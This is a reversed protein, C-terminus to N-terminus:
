EGRRLEGPRPAIAADDIANRPRPAHQPPALATRRLDGAALVAVRRIGDLRMGLQRWRAAERQRVVYVHHGAAELCRDRLDLRRRAEVHRLHDGPRRALLGRRGAMSTA